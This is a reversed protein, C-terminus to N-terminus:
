PVEGKHSRSVCSLKKEVLLEEYFQTMRTVLEEVSYERQMKERGARGMRSRLEPNTLLLDLHSALNVDDNVSVLYGSVGPEILDICDGCRTSVVPLGAAMAEMVMNPLGELYSTMCCVDMASLYRAALPKAGPISVKSAIGLDQAMAALQSKVPGDGIIVLRLEPWKKTLRAFARLLM